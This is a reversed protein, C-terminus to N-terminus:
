TQLKGHPETDSLASTKLARYRWRPDFGLEEGQSSKPAEGWAVGHLESSALYM